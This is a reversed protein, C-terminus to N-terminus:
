GGCHVDGSGMKHISCRASGSLTVDGSGAVSVDATQMARAAIDGSGVVSITAAGIELGGAVIDGSGAVTMSARGAKGSAKIDGSGAISFKADGVELTGIAMDGSGEITADFGNGAVKDISMDGSGAIAAAALAPATVYVTLHREHHFGWSWQTGSKYGIKLQGNEVPIALRDVLEKDGEARVSPTGGVTVVVDPSGALFVRDFAGVQFARTVRPGADHADAHFGCAGLLILPAFALASRTM